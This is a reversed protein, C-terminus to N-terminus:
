VTACSRAFFQGIFSKPGVQKKVEFIMLLKELDVVTARRTKLLLGFQGDEGPDESKM